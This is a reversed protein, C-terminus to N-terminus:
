LDPFPVEFARRVAAAIDECSSFEFGWLDDGFLPELKTCLRQDWAYTLGGRLGQKTATGVAAEPDEAPLGWLRNIAGKSEQIRELSLAALDYRVQSTTVWGGAPGPALLLLLSLERPAAMPVWRKM